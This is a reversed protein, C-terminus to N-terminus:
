KRKLEFRNTFWRVIGVLVLIGLLVLVLVKWPIVWFSVTAQDVVQQDTLSRNLSLEAEYLGFLFGPNWSIARYRTSDPLAFYADVALRDITQGFLNTIEIQGYPALHINGTNEFLIEFGSPLDSWFVSDPGSLKFDSLAGSEEVPGEVRVLFLSALRSVIRATTGDVEQASPTNSVIVAGYRGGPEAEAPISVTVNFSIREGSALTFEDLEPDILDRLSNPGQQDGLLEVVQDTGTASTFDEIGITFNASSDTRNTVTINRTETEGPAVSVETKGPGIIFDGQSEIDLQTRTAADAPTIAPLALLALTAITTLAVKQM